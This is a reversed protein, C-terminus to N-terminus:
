RPDDAPSSLEAPAPAAEGNETGVFGPSNWNEGEAAEDRGVYPIGLAEAERRAIADAKKEDKKEQKLARKEARARERMLKGMTQRKKGSM